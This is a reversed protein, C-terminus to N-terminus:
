TKMRRKRFYVVVFTAALIAAITAFVTALPWFGSTEQSVSDWPKSPATEAPQDPSSAPPSSTSSGVKVTQTNSWDSAQGEFYFDYTPGGVDIIHGYPEARFGGYLVQVQIDIEGGVPDGQFRSLPIQCVTTGSSSAQYPVSFGDSVFYPLSANPNFPEYSWGEPAYHGKYRFNYYSAGSPNKITVEIVRNDVHYGHATTATTNGTYPNTSYTTKNPVDYSLDVYRLSFESVSPKPISQAFAFGVYLLSSFALIVIFLLTSVKRVSVVM